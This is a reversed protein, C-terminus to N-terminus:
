RALLTSVCRSALRVTERRPDRNKAMGCPDPSVSVDRDALYPMHRQVGRPHSGRWRFFKGSGGVQRFHPSGSFTGSNPSIQDNPKESAESLRYPDPAASAILIVWILAAAVVWVGAVTWFAEPMSGPITRATAVALSLADVFGLMVCAITAVTAIIAIIIGSLKVVPKFAHTPISELAVTYEAASKQTTEFESREFRAKDWHTVKFSMHNNTTSRYLLM